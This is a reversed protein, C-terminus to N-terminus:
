PHHSGSVCCLMSITMKPRPKLVNEIDDEGSTTSNSSAGTETQNYSDPPPTDGLLTTVYQSSVLMTLGPFSSIYLTSHVTSSYQGLLYQVPVLWSKRRGFKAWFVSDVLPAWLVQVTLITIIFSKNSVPINTKFKFM